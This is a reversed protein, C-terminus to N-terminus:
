SGSVYISFVNKKYFINARGYYLKLDEELKILENFFSTGIEFNKDEMKIFLKFRFCMVKVKHAKLEKKLGEFSVYNSPTNYLETLYKM